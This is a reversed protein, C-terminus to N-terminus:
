LIQTACEPPPTPYRHSDVCYNYNLWRKKVWKLQNQQHSTLTQTGNASSSSTSSALNSVIPSAYTSAACSAVTNTGVLECANFYFGQYTAIFPASTWNLKIRGGETAWQDGDWISAYIGLPQKRLYAVGLAENNKFARILVNDVYFRCLSSSTTYTLSDYFEYGCGLMM